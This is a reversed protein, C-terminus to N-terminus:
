AKRRRLALLAGAGLLGLAIVSPEPVPSLTFSTLGGTGVLPAAAGAPTTTPDGTDVRLVASTGAQWQPDGTLIAARYDNGAATEWVRIQFLGFGGAPTITGVTRGGGSFTGVVGVTGGFDTTGGVRIATEGFIAQSGDPAYMLEATFRSGVPVPNGDNMFVRTAGNNAFNVSGQGYSNLTALVALANILLIKKMPIENSNKKFL